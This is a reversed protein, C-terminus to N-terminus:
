YLVVKEEEMERRLHDRQRRVDESAPDMEVAKKLDLLAFKM